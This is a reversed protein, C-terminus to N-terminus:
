WIDHRNECDKLTLSVGGVHKNLLLQFIMKPLKASARNTSALPRKEIYRYAANRVREAADVICYKTQISNFSWEM